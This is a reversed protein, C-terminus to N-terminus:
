DRSTNGKVVKPNSGLKNNSFTIFNALKHVVSVNVAQVSHKEDNVRKENEEKQENSLTEVKQKQYLLSSYSYFYFLTSNQNQNV